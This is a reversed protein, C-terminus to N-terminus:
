PSILGILLFLACVQFVRAWLSIYYIQFLIIMSSFPIIKPPFMYPTNRKQLLELRSCIVGCTSFTHGTFSFGPNCFSLTVWLKNLIYLNRRVITVFDTIQLFLFINEWLEPSCLWFEVDGPWFWTNGIRLKQLSGKTTAKDSRHELVCSICVL